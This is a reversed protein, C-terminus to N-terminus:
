ATMGLYSSFLVVAYISLLMISFKKKFVSGSLHMGLGFIILTIIMAPFLLRSFHEPGSLGDRTLSAAMGTVFLVNLINAGMINGLALEGHGKKVAKLSTVLEPLSTGFAVMTAGIIAQPLNMRVAATQVAPILCHSAAVVLGCGLLLRFVMMGTHFNESMADSDGIAAELENKSWHFAGWLYCFLLVLFVIGMHRPLLVRADFVHDLTFFPICSVVLLSGAAFQCWGQRKMNLSNTAIPSVLTVLGMILGTNCIISGVANGLALEPHGNVAAFISVAAEPLTTGISIVFLGVMLPSIRFRRSLSIAEDVLIDAGKSLGCILILIVLFLLPGPFPEMWTILHM